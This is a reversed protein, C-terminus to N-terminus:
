HPMKTQLVHLLEAQEELAPLAQSRVNDLDVLGDAALPYYIVVIVRGIRGEETAQAIQRYPIRLPASLPRLLTLGLADVEVRSGAGRLALLLIALGISLFLLEGLDYSQLLWWGLLAVCIAAVGAILVYRPHPRYTMM